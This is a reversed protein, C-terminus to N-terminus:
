GASTVCIRSSSTSTPLSARRHTQEVRYIPVPEGFGKLAFSGVPATRVEAQNVALWASPSLYIEDPPTIAEIRATLVVTGGVLAGDEHLV